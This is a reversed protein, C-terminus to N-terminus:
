GRWAEEEMIRELEEPPIRREARVPTHLARWAPDDELTEGALGAVVVRFSHDDVPELVVVDGAELNVQRRVKKNVVIRYREDVRCASMIEWLFM